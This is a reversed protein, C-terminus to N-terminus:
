LTKLYELLARKDQASLRTGYEHGCNSNGSTLDCGTTTRLYRQGEPQHRALGLTQPDYVPGVEFSAARRSAPELLEAMSRVSGNHLYPPAAWIGELVRSAYTNTSPAGTQILDLEPYKQKIAGQTTALLIAAAPAAEGLEVGNPLTAGEMVGTLAPRLLVEWHKTDTGVNILPTAWTDTVPPRELGRQVGHCSACEGAFVREGRAVLPQSVPWPWKPPGIRGILEELAQLGEWNASNNTLYDYGSASDDKVPHFVAFVGYVEGVNRSLGQTDNGNPAIGSWQTFDQRTSNWLFPFRVPANAPRINLPKLYTPPPGINLGTLKNYIMSLADMRGLGWMDPTPLSRSMLTHYRLHWASLKGRLVAGDGAAGVVALKFAAFAAPQDLTHQVAANLDKFFSEIDIIAPGGDMRYSRGGHTIQRVHCAACTIGTQQLGADEAVHFGVPLSAASEDNFLFGYRAFQDRLFPRGGSDRLAALWAYPILRSGQDQVYYRSRAEATWQSGQDTYAVADRMRAPGNAAAPVTMLLAASLVFMYKSFVKESGQLRPRRLPQWPPDTLQKGPPGARYVPALM